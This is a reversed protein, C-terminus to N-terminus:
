KEYKRLRQLQRAKASIIRAEEYNDANQSKAVEELRATLEILKIYKREELADKIELKLDFLGLSEFDFKEVQINM